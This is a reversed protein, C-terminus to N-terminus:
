SCKSSRSLSSHLDDALRPPSPQVPPQLWGQQARGDGLADIEVQVGDEPLGGDLKLLPSAPSQVTLLECKGLHRKRRRLRHAYRWGVKAGGAMEMVSANHEEWFAVDTAHRKDVVVAGAHLAARSRAAQLYCQLHVFVQPLHLCDM